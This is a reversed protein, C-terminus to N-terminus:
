PLKVMKHSHENIVDHLQQCLYKPGFKRLVPSTLCSNIMESNYNQMQTYKDESTYLQIIILQISQILSLIVKNSM